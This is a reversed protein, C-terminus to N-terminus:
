VPPGFYVVFVDDPAAIDVGFGAWEEPGASGRQSQIASLLTQQIARRDRHGCALTVGSRKWPHRAGVAHARGDWVAKRRVETLSKSLEALGDDSWGLVTCIADSRGVTSMRDAASLLDLVNKPIKRRPKEVAPAQSVSLAHHFAQIDGDFGDLAIRNVDRPFRPDDPDLAGSLYVGLYDWEDHLYFRGDRQMRDRRRLYDFLQSPMELCASVVRLDSLSLAWPFEGDSFLGLPAFTRLNAAIQAWAGSGVLTVLFVETVDASRVVIRRGSSREIFETADRQRIYDRARKAQRLPEVIARGVDALVADVDGRLAVLTPSKWKCEFLLLKNDHLVLGDLDFRTKKPGYELGWGSADPSPILRRFAEMSSRELWKARADDYTPRYSASGFLRRHFAYLIAEFLLGPVFLYFRSDALVLPSVAFPSLALPNPAGPVADPTTSMLVLFAKVQDTTLRGEAFREMEEQTCGVIAKAQPFFWAMSIARAFEESPADPLALELSKRVATPLDDIDLASSPCSAVLEQIERSRKRTAQLTESFRENVIKAATFAEQATLGLNSRCWEDHPSYVEVAFTELQEQFGQGRVHLAESELNSRIEDQGESLGPRRVMLTVSFAGFYEELAKELPGLVLGDIAAPEKPITMRRSCVLWALWEIRVQWKVMEDRNPQEHVPHTQYLLTLQALLEIPDVTRAIQEIQDVIGPLRAQADAALRALDIPQPEEDAM